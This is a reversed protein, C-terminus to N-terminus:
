RSCCSCREGRARPRRPTAAGRGRGAAAGARLAPDRPPERRRGHPGARAVDVVAAAPQAASLRRARRPPRRPTARLRAVNGGVGLPAKAKAAWILVEDGTCVISADATVIRDLTVTLALLLAAWFLATEIRRGRRPAARSSRPLSRSAGRAFARWSRRWARARRASRSRRPARRRCRSGAGPSSRRRSFSRARSGRWGLFALRDERARVGLGRVVAV